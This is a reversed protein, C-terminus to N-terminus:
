IAEKLYKAYYYMSDSDEMYEKVNKMLFDENKSRWFEYDRVLAERLLPHMSPVDSYDYGYIWQFMFEELINDDGTAFELFTQATISDKLCDPCFEGIMDEETFLEGCLRCQEAKLPTGYDCYPCLVLPESYYENHREEVRRPEEFVRSCCDCIYM